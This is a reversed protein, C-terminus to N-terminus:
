NLHRKPITKTAVPLLLDTCTIACELQQRNQINIIQDIDSRSM